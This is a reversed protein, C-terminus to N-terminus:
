DTFKSEHVRNLNLPCYIIFHCNRRFIPPPERGGTLAKVLPVGGHPSRTQRNSYCGDQGHTRARYLRWGPGPDHGEGSRTLVERGELLFVCCAPLESGALGPTGRTRLGRCVVRNAGRHRTGENARTEARRNTGHGTLDSCASGNPARRPRQNATRGARIARLVRGGIQLLAVVGAVCLAHVSVAIRHLTRGATIPCCTTIRIPIPIPIRIWIISGTIAVITPWGDHDPTAPSPSPVAM